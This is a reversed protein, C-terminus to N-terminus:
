HSRQYLDAVEEEEEEEEEEMAQKSDPTRKL